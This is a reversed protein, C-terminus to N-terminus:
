SFFEQNQLNDKENKLKEIATVYMMLNPEKFGFSEAKIKKYKGTIADFIKIEIYSHSDDLDNQKNM